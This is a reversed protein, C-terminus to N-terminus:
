GNLRRAGASYLVALSGGWLLHGVLTLASLNPLTAEIGVLSLWAPMIVGAAVLWLALSWGLAVGYYRTRESVGDPVSQVLAAYVLGFVVSHFGHTIWGVLANRVGYLAGIVPVSGSLLQYPVGMVVAAVVSAGVALGIRRPSLGYVEESAPQVVGGDTSIRPLTLTITTGDDSVTAETRGGYSRVLLRVLDLGFGTSRDEYSGIEGRELLDLQREPLGPGNDSVSITVTDTTDTVAVEVRPSDSDNYVVANEVLHAVLNDLMTNARVQLDAPV